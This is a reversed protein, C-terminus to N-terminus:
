IAPVPQSADEHQWGAAAVHQQHRPHIQCRAPDAAAGITTSASRLICTEPNASVRCLIGLLAWGSVRGTYYLILDGCLMAVFSVGIVSYLNLKGYAAVAGATLVALAAPVPLGIAEAFCVAALLLYGHRSIIPLLDDVTQRLL